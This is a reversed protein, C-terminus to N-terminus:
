TIARAVAASTALVERGWKGEDVLRVSYKGCDKGATEFDLGPTEELFETNQKSHKRCLPTRVATM